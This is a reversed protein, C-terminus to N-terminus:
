NDERMPNQRQDIYLTLPYSPLLRWLFQKKTFTTNTKLRSDYRLLKFKIGFFFFTQFHCVDEQVVFLEFDLFFNMM